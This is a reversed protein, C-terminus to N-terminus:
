TELVNTIYRFFVRLRLIFGRLMFIKFFINIVTDESKSGSQNGGDIMSMLGANLPVIAM